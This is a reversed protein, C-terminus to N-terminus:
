GRRTSLAPDINIVGRSGNTIPDLNNLLIRIVEGFGLTM